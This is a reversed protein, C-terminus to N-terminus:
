CNMVCDKERLIYKPYQKSITTWRSRKYNKLIRIDNPTMKFYKTLCYELQHPDATKNFFTMDHMENMVKRSFDRNMGIHNIDHSAIIISVNAARGLEMIYKRVANIKRMIAPNIEAMSDVDDFIMLSNDNADVVNKPDIDLLTEDLIIRKIIGKKEFLEFVPDYDKLSFLYIDNHPYLKHYLNVIKSILTSKGSGSMGVIYKVFREASPIPIMRGHRIKIRKFGNERDGDNYEDEYSDESDTESMSLEEDDDKLYVINGDLEGGSIYAIPKSNGEERLLLSM